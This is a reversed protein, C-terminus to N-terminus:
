ESITFIGHVYKAALNKGKWGILGKLIDCDIVVDQGKRYESRYAELVRDIQQEYFKEAELKAQSLDLGEKAEKSHPLIQLAKQFFKGAQAHKGQFGLCYGMSYALYFNDPRAALGEELVHVAAEIRKAKILTGVKQELTLSRWQSQRVVVGNGLDYFSDARKMSGNGPTVPRGFIAGSVNDGWAYIKDLANSVANMQTLARATGGNSVCGKWLFVM